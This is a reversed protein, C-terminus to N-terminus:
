KGLFANYAKIKWRSKGITFLCKKAYGHAGNTSQVYHCIYKPFIEKALSGCSLFHSANLAKTQRMTEFTGNQYKMKEEGM